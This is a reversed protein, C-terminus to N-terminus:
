PWRSRSPRGKQSERLVGRNDIYITPCTLTSGEVVHARFRSRLAMNLGERTLTEIVSHAGKPVARQHVTM